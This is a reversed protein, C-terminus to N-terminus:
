KVLYRRQNYFKNNEPVGSNTTLRDSVWNNIETSFTLIEGNTLAPKIALLDEDDTSTVPNEEYGIESFLQFDKIRYKLAERRINEKAYWNTCDTTIPAYSVPASGIEKMLIAVDNFGSGADYDGGCVLSYTYIPSFCNHHTTTIGRHKNMTYTFQYYTQAWGVCSGIGGQNGIKPFFKSQSNDISEPLSSSNKILNYAGGKSKLAYYDEASGIVVGDYNNEIQNSLDGTARIVTSELKENDADTANVQVATTASSLMIVSM